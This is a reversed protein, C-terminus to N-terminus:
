PPPSSVSASRWSDLFDILEEPPRIWLDALTNRLTDRVLVSLGHGKMVRFADEDTSDDGLYAAAISKNSRSLIETVARGKDRGKARLELGGDFEHIEVDSDKIIATWGNVVLSRIAPVENTSLGRWHAAIGVPKQEKLNPKNLEDLVKAGQVLISKSLADLPLLSYTGKSSLHEWGHSGWIEPLPSVGLLAVIDQVARGSIVIIETKGSSVMDCLPVRVEPYPVAKRRDIAFPALTGDYDLLLARREARRVGEFFSRLDTEPSLVQL